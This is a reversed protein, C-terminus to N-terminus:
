QIFLVGTSKEADIQAQYIPTFDLDRNIFVRIRSGPKVVITPPINIYPTLVQQSSNAAAQQIQNRYTATSNYQDSPNVGATSAGAGIISLLASVGFIQAFHNDVEGGMGATGLQDAGYSDLTIESGDPRIARNWVVFLRDQGKRIEASYVGILRTGWPLLKNRGQESYVDRQVIARLTGPLDSNARPELVADILKGQLVKYELNNIQNAKSIATGGGSVARAFRSNTDQAGRPDADAAPAIPLGPTPDGRAETAPQPEGTPAASTANPLLISSKLRAIQMQRENEERQLEIQARQVRLPDDTQGAANDPPTQEPATTSTGTPKLQPVTKREAITLDDKAPAGNSATDTSNDGHKLYYVGGLAGIALLFIMAGSANNKLTKAVISERTVDSSEKEWDDIAKQRDNPTNNKTESAM